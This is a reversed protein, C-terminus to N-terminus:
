TDTAITKVTGDGFKVKLDGDASDVYISAKGTHAAPATMGDVLCLAGNVDLREEPGTLGIGVNGGTITLGGGAVRTIWTDAAAAGSGLGVRPGIDTTGTGENATQISVRAFDESTGSQTVYAGQSHLAAQTGQQHRSVNLTNAPSITNILVIENDVRAYAGPTFQAGDNVVFATQTTSAVADHLTSHKWATVNLGGGNQPDGQLGLVGLQNFGMLISQDVDGSGAWEHNGQIDILLRASVDVATNVTPPASGSILGTTPETWTAGISVPNSGNQKTETGTSTSVYVNFGTASGPAGAPNTVTLLNNASVAKSTETSPLSEGSPIVWTIKVYYTTAGMTGGPTQGLGPAGPAVVAGWTAQAVHSNDLNQFSLLEPGGSSQKTATGGIVVSGSANIGGNVDLKAAPSTTGIGVNGGSQLTLRTQTDAFSLDSSNADVFVAWKQIGAGALSFAVQSAVAADARIYAHASSVYVIGLAGSGSVHLPYDSNQTGIGLNSGSQYMVSNGLSGANDTFV